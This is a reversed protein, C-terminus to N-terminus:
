RKKYLVLEPNTGNEEYTSILVFDMNALVRFCRNWIAICISVTQMVGSAIIRM